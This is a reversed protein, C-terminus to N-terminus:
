GSAGVVSSVSFFCRPMRTATREAISTTQVVCGLDLGGIGTFLTVVKM